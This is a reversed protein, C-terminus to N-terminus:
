VPNLKFDEAEALRRQQRDFSYFLDAKMELAAAVHLVDASRTGFKSTTASSIQRARAFVSDPLTELQLVAGRLDSEFHNRSAKAQRATIEGRFVRLELANVLELEGLSSLHFEAGRKRIAAAALLTNADLCYLSVLLSTDLYIKM